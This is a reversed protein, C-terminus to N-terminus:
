FCFSVYMNIEECRAPANKPEQFYFNIIEIKEQNMM